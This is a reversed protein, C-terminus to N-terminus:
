SDGQQDYINEGKIRDIVWCEDVPLLDKTTPVKPSDPDINIKKMPRTIDNLMRKGDLVGMALLDWVRIKGNSYLEAWYYRIGYTKYMYRFFALKKKDCYVGENVKHWDDFEYDTAEKCEFGILDNEGYKFYVDARAEKFAKPSDFKVFELDVPPLGKEMAEKILRTDTKLELFKAININKKEKILETITTATFDRKSQRDCEFDLHKTM